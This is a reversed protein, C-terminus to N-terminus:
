SGDTPEVDRSANVVSIFVSHFSSPSKERFSIIALFIFSRLTQKGVDKEVVKGRGSSKTGQTKQDGAAGDLAVRERWGRGGNPGDEDAKVEEKAVEQAHVM